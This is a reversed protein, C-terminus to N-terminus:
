NSNAYPVENLCSRPLFLEVAVPIAPSTSLYGYLFSKVTIVGITPSCLTRLVANAHNVYKVDDCHILRM